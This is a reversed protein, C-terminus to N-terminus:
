RKLATAVITAELSPVSANVGSDTNLEISYTEISTSTTSVVIPRSIVPGESVVDSAYDVREYLVDSGRKV